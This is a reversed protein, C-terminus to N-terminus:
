PCPFSPAVSSTAIFIAYDGLKGVKPVSPGGDTGACKGGGNSPEYYAADFRWARLGKSKMAEEVVADSVQLAQAVTKKFGERRPQLEPGWVAIFEVYEAPRRVAVWQPTPVLRDLLTQAATNWELGVPTEVRLHFCRGHKDSKAKPASLQAWVSTAPAAVPAQGDAM